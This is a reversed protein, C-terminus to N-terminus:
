KLENVLDLAAQFNAGIQRYDDACRADNLDGPELVINSVTAALMNKIHMMLMHKPMMGNKYSELEVSFRTALKEKTLVQNERRFCGSVIHGIREDIGETVLDTMETLNEYRELLALESQRIFRLMANQVEDVGQETSVDTGDADFLRADGNVTCKRVDKLFLANPLDSITFVVSDHAVGEPMQDLFYKLIQGGIERATANVQMDQTKSHGPVHVGVRLNLNLNQFM